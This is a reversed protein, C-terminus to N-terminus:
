RAALIPRFGWVPAAMCILAEFDTPKLAPLAKFSLRQFTKLLNSNNGLDRTAENTFFLPFFAAPSHAFPTTALM